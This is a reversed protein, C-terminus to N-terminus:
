RSLKEVFAELSEESAMGLHYGAYKGNKDFFLMFPISGGWNTLQAMFEVFAKNQPDSMYDVIPYDIGRERLSKIDQMSLPEQVHLGIIQLKKAMETQLRGLLPIEALCPPCHKGFFDIIIVRNPYNKVKLGDHNVTVEIKTNDVTTLTFNKQFNKAGQAAIMSVVMFCLLLLKKM